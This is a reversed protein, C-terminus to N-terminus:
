ASEPTAGAGSGKACQHYCIKGHAGHREATGVRAAFVATGKVTAGVSKEENNDNSIPSPPDPDFAGGMDGVLAAPLQVKARLGHISARESAM